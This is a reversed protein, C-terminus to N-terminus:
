YRSSLNVVADSDAVLFADDEIATEEGPLFVVQDTNDVVEFQEWESLQYGLDVAYDPDTELAKWDAKTMAYEDTETGGVSGGQGASTHQDTEDTM